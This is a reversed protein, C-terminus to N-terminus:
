GDCVCQVCVVCVYLVCLYLVGCVWVGCARVGCVGCVVCGVGWVGCGVCGVCVSKHTPPGVGSTTICDFSHIVIYLPTIMHSFAHDCYSSSESFLKNLSFFVTLILRELIVTDSALGTLSLGGM